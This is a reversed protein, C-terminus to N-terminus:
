WGDRSPRKRLWSRSATSCFHSSPRRASSAASEAHLDIAASHLCMWEGQTMVRSAM